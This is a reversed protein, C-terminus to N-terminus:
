AKTMAIITLNAYPERARIAGPSGVNRRRLACPGRDRYVSMSRRAKARPPDPTAQHVAVTPLPRMMVARVSAPRCSSHTCNANVPRIEDNLDEREREEDIHEPAVREPWDGLHEVRTLVADALANLGGLADLALQLLRAGLIFRHQVFGPALRLLDHGTSAFHALLVDRARFLLRLHLRSSTM